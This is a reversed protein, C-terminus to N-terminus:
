SQPAQAVQATVSRSGERNALYTASATGGGGAIRFGNVASFVMRMPRRWLRILQYKM